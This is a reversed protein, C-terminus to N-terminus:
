GHLRSDPLISVALACLSTPPDLLCWDNLWTVVTRGGNNINKPVYGGYLCERLVYSIYGECCPVEKVCFKQLMYGECCTVKAVCCKRLLFFGYCTVETVHLRRSVTSEYHYKRLPVETIRLKRLVYSRYCTVKAVRCKQLAYSGYCTVKAVHCKQLKRLMYGECFPVETVASGDCTVETFCCKRLMASGYCLVEM